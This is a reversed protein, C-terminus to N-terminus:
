NAYANGDGASGWIGRWDSWGRSFRQRSKFLALDTDFSDDQKFEPKIRDFWNLEHQDSDILFWSTTSTLYIWDIIKLENKYINVDNDATGQRLPSDIILHATKRNNIPVLLTDPYIDIKMGKDDLQNRMAIIATELNAESLTIGTASANSQSSGGDSRPHVTSCLVKADGGLQTITFANNFIVAAQNERTRRAARGLAGPKKNMVNYLDDEYMERTVKFGKTYKLHIYIVSYMQVPDEYDIPAGEATQVMYGFGTVASDREDQKESTNVHFLEEAISPIEEYRDDFIERFGPELLDGFGSRTAPM